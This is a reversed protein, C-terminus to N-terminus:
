ESERLYAVYDSADDHLIGLDTMIMSYPSHCGVDRCALRWSFRRGENPAAPRVHAGKGEAHDLASVDAFGHM